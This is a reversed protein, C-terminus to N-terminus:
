VRQLNAWSLSVTKVQGDIRVAIRGALLPKTPQVATGLRGNLDAAATLGTIQVRTGAPYHTTLQSLAYRAPQHGQDAALKLLRATKIIDQQVGTGKAYLAGLNHQAPAYGQDVALQYLRVAETHDQPVASGDLYMLALNCEADAHGLDAALRYL